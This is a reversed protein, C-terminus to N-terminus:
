SAGRHGAEGERAAGNWLYSCDRPMGHFGHLVDEVRVVEATADFESFRGAFLRIRRISRSCVECVLGCVPRETGVRLNLNHKNQLPPRM